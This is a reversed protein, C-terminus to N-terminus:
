TCISRSPKLKELTPRNLNEVKVLVQCYKFKESDNINRDQSEYFKLNDKMKEVIKVPIVWVMLM